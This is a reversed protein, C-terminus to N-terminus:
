RGSYRVKERIHDLAYVVRVAVEAAASENLETHATLTEAFLKVRQEYQSVFPGSSPMM